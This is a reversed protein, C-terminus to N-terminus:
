LQLIKMRYLIAISLTIVAIIIIAVAATVTTIMISWTVQTTSRQLVVKRKLVVFRLPRTGSASASRPHPEALSDSKRRCQHANDCQSKVASTSPGYLLGTLAYCLCTGKRAGSYLCYVLVTKLSLPQSDTM